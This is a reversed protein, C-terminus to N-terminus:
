EPIQWLQEKPMGDLILWVRAPNPLLILRSDQTDYDDVDVFVGDKPSITYQQTEPNKQYQKPLYATPLLVESDPCLEDHIDMFVGEMFDGFDENFDDELDHLEDEVEDYKEHSYDLSVLENRLEVIRALKDNLDKNDVM